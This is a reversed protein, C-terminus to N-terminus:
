HENILLLNHGLAGLFTVLAETRDESRLMETQSLHSSCALALTGVIANDIRIPVALFSKSTYRGASERGRELDTIDFARPRGETLARVAALYSPSEIRGRKGNVGEISVGASSAWRVLQRESTSPYSRVWLELCYTEAARNLPDTAATVGFIPLADGLGRRLRGPLDPDVGTTTVWEHWWASLRDGYQRTWAYDPHPKRFATRVYAEHVLQSVQGHFDAFVAKVGLETARHSALDTALSEGAPDFDTTQGQKTLIAVRNKGVKRTASLARILPSDQLSSGVMLTMASERLHRRLVTGVEKATEAYSNEDLVIPWSVDGKRPVRGHLYILTISSEAGNPMRLPEYEAVMQEPSAVMIRMGPVPLDGFGELDQRLSRYGEELHDDYNTTLITTVRGAMSRLVALQILEPVLEGAQWAAKDGYLSRRIRHRLTDRLSSSSEKAVRRLTHILSSALQDPALAVSNGLQGSTPGARYHKSHRAPFCSKVLASWSLGTRDISVGAGCYIMLPGDCTALRDLLDAAQSSEFFPISSRM